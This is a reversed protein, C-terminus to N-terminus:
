CAKEIFDKNKELFSILQEPSKNNFEIRCKRTKIVLHYNEKKYFVYSWKVAFPTSIKMAESIKEKNKIIKERKAHLLGVIIKEFIFDVIRIGENDHVLSIDIKSEKGDFNLGCDYMLLLHMKQVKKFIREHLKVTIFKAELNEIIKYFTEEKQFKLEEYFIKMSSDLIKELKKKLLMARKETM